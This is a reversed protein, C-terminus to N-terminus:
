AEVNESKRRMLVEMAGETQWSLYEVKWPKPRYINWLGSPHSPDFYTWTAENCPNCHTPDQFYGMSICYPTIILLQAEPKCVRWLENMFRLFGGRAPNIHEVMHSCLVRVVSENPLPWPFSEVDHIIDVGPLPQIDMGVYGQQKCAGCGVDLMIDRFVLHGAEPEKETSLDLLVGSKQSLLEGIGTM